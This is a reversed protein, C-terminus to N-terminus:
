RSARSSSCPLSPSRHARHGHTSISDADAGVRSVAGAPLTDHARGCDSRLASVSRRAHAPITVHAPEVGAYTEAGQRKVCQSM